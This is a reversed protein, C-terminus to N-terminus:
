AVFHSVTLIIVIHSVSDYQMMDFLIINFRLLMGYCVLQGHIFIWHDHMEWFTGDFNTSVHQFLCPFMHFVQEFVESSKRLVNVGRPVDSWTTQQTVADVKTTALQPSERATSHRAPRAM